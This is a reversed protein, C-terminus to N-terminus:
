HFVENMPWGKNLRYRTRAYPVSFHRCLESLCATIGDVTLIRTDSRNRNQEAKTAWRCNEKYYGKDNDIREISKGVPREGMDDFFGVFTM